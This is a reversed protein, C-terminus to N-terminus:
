EVLEQGKQVVGFLVDEAFFIVVGPIEHVNTRFRGRPSFAIRFGQNLICGLLYTFWDRIGLESLGLDIKKGRFFSFLVFFSCSAKM